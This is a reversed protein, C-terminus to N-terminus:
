PTPQKGAIFGLWAAQQSLAHANMREGGGLQQWINPWVSTAFEQRLKRMTEEHDRQTQIEKESM